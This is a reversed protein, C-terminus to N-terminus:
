LSTILKVAEGVDIVRVCNPNKVSMRLSYIFLTYYLVWKDSRHPQIYGVLHRVYAGSKTRPVSPTIRVIWFHVGSVCSIHRILNLGPFARPACRDCAIESRNTWGICGTFRSGTQYGVQNSESLALKHERLVWDLVFVHLRKYYRQSRCMIYSYIAYM